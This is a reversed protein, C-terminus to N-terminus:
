DVAEFRRGPQAPGPGGGLRGGGYFRARRGRSRWSALPAGMGLGSPAHCWLFGALAGALHGVLSVHSHLISSLIVDLWVAHRRRIPIGHVVAPDDPCEQFVVSSMAYLVGSFGVACHLTGLALVELVRGLAVALVGSAALAFALFGVYREIGMRAELMSGKWLLSASNYYLHLDDVHLLASLLLRRVVESVRDSLSRQGFAWLTWGARGTVTAWIVQSDICVDTTSFPIVDPFVHVFILLLTVFTTAHGPRVPMSHYADYLRALLVLLFALQAPDRPQERRGRM